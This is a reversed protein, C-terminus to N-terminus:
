IFNVREINHKKTSPLEIQQKDKLKQQLVFLLSSTTIM